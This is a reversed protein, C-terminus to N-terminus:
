RTSLPKGFIEQLVFAERLAAPNARIQRAIRAAPSVLEGIRLVTQLEVQEAPRLLQQHMDVTVDVSQREYRAADRMESTVGQGDFRPDARSLTGSLVAPDMEPDFTRRAPQLPPPTPRRAPAPMAPPSPKRAPKTAKPAVPAPPISNTPLGLAEFFKRMKEDEATGGGPLKPPPLPADTQKGKVMKEILNKIAFGLAIVAFIILKEM